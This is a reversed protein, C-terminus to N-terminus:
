LCHTCPQQTCTADDVPTNFSCFSYTSAPNVCMVRRCIIPRSGGDHGPHCNGYQFNVCCTGRCSRDGRAPVCNCDHPRRLNCDVYYRYGGSCLGSGTYRATCKWYGGIFTYSPCENSGVVSCCFETFGDGFAAFAPTPSILTRLPALSAAAGVAAVRALFGRRSSRRDLFSSARRILHETM